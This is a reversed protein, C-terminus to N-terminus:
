GKTRKLEPSGSRTGHRRGRAGRVSNEIRSKRSNRRQAANLSDRAGHRVIGEQSAGHAVGRKAEMESSGPDGTPEGTLEGMVDGMEMSGDRGGGCVGRAALSLALFGRYM